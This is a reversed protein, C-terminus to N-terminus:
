TSQEIKNAWLSRGNSSLLVKKGLMVEEAWQAFAIFSQDLRDRWLVSLYMLLVLWFFFVLVTVIAWVISQEIPVGDRDGPIHVLGGSKPILGFIVWALISRQLSSQLLYMPYSISGLFLAPRCSLISRLTPSYLVSYVILVTGIISFAYCFEGLKDSYVLSM